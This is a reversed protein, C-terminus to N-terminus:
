GIFREGYVLVPYRIGPNEWSARARTKYDDGALWHTMVEAVDPEKSSGYPPDTVVADVSADELTM